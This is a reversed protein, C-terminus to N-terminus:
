SPVKFEFPDSQKLNYYAMAMKDLLKDKKIDVHYVPCDFEQALKERLDECFGEQDLTSWDYPVKINIQDEGYQAVAMLVTGLTKKDQLVVAKTIEAEVM